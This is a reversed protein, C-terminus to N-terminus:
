NRISHNVLNNVLDEERHIVLYVVRSALRMSACARQDPINM